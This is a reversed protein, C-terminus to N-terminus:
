IELQNRMAKTSYPTHAARMIEEFRAVIRPNGAAVDQTENPDSELNYLEIPAKEGKRLAKWEGMRAARPSGGDPTEWYLYEHRPQPKGLLAPLFSLGDIGPPPAFGAIGGATPLFDWLACIHDCTTGPQIRGPWRAILPARIGGEYFQGKEGRLSGKSNFFSTKHGSISDPGNDSSFMVITNDDLGLHKLKAMIQGVTDDLRHIMSAFNKEQQPWPRDSYPADNPVEFGNGTDRGLANNVHPLTFAGYLFFPHDKNTEIFRLAARTFIDHSYQKRSTGRNGNLFMEFENEWLHEPYYSHAHLQDLYGLWFDFGKRNPIGPTGAPGIGWKGVIGTRYGAKQLLQAVTVDQELLWGRRNGRVRAHGTHYGTMLCCRSPACVSAGAYARTFRMGEAALRDTHPTAIKTQGYCGLEGWGLDDGLIFIINPKRGAPAAAGHVAAASAGLFERRNLAAPM